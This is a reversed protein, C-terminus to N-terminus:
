IMVELWEADPLIVADNSPDGMTEHPLAIPSAEASERPVVRGVKWAAWGQRAKLWACYTDAQDAPLAVLLGGSTESSLGRTLRFAAGERASQNVALAGKLVPLTHLEFRVPARVSRALNTAHGLIGFGTVDTAGAAGFKHMGEAAAMNLTAMSQCAGGYLAAVEDPTLIGDLQHCRDPKRRWQWANVALQTGLPKTLVLVMGPTIGHPLIFEEDRVTATVVGGIIPWPNVVTQGGTVSMGAEAVAAAFGAILLEATRDRDPGPMERPLGLLMLMTDGQVIGLSFLDSMVNAAAIRGQLEPSEVLPYFFDTTSM